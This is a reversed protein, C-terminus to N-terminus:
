VDQFRELNPLYAVDNLTDAARMREIAQYVGQKGRGLHRAIKVGTWGLLVGHRIFNLEYETFPKSGLTKAM